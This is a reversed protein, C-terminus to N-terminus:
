PSTRTYALPPPRSHTLRRYDLLRHHDPADSTRTVQKKTVRLPQKMVVWNVVESCPPTTLSGFYHYYSPDSPLIRGPRLKLGKLGGDPPSLTPLMYVVSLILWFLSGWDQANRWLRQGFSLADTILCNVWIKIVRGCDAFWIILRIRLRDNPWLRYNFLKGQDHDDLWLRYDFLEM